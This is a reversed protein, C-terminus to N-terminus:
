IGSKSINEKHNLKVEISGDISEASYVFSEM